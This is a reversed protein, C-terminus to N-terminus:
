ILRAHQLERRVRAAEVGVEHAHGELEALHELAQRVRRDGATDLRALRERQRRAGVAVDALAALLDAFEDAMAERETAALLDNIPRIIVSNM